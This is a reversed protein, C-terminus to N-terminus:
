KEDDPAGDPIMKMINLTRKTQINGNLSRIFYNNLSFRKRIPM